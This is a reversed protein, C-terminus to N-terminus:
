LSVRLSCVLAFGGAMTYGLVIVTWLQIGSLAAFKSRNTKDSHKLQSFKESVITGDNGM